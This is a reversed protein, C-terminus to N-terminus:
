NSKKSYHKAQEIYSNAIEYHAEIVINREKDGTYKAEQGIISYLIRRAEDYEGTVMLSKGLGLQAHLRYPSHLYNNFVKKYGESAKEYRGSKYYSDALRCFVMDASDFPIGSDLLREYIDAAKRYWGNDFHIDAEEILNRITDKTIQMHQSVEPFSDGFEGAHSEASKVFDKLPRVTKSEEISMRQKEIMTRLADKEKSIWTHQIGILLLILLLIGINIIVIGKYGSTNGILGNIKEKIKKVM